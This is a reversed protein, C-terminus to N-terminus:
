VLLNLESLTCNGVLGAGITSGIPRYTMKMRRAVTVRLSLGLILAMAQIQKKLVFYM